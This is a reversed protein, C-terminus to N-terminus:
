PIDPDPAPVDLHLPVARPRREIRRVRSLRALAAKTTRLAARQVKLSATVQALQGALDRLLLLDAETM